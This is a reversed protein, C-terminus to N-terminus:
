NSYADRTAAEVQDRNMNSPFIDQPGGAATSQTLRSGGEM